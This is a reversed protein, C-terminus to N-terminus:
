PMDPNNKLDNARKIMYVRVQEVETETMYDTFNPMGREEAIGGLVFAAFVNPDSITGSYRLNPVGGNNVGTDGHCMWCNKNYALRGAAITQESAEHPPPNLVLSPKDPMPLQATGDLAFTVIRNVTPPAGKSLLEGMNLTMIGGWGTAVSIYQKGDIAYTIPPAVIGTSVNQEWLKEGTQASYASFYGEGNGHFVLEGATSLTGGNWPTAMPVSWVEEQKVPDWAILKSQTSARIQARIEPDEPMSITAPNEGTNWAGPRYEFETSKLANYPYGAIMVPFYVLGTEPNFSMPHWNHGGGPGPTGLFPEGDISYRAEDVTNPRGTEPNLGNAWNVPVYEKGSIFEGTERDIVYFFGNKPAQMIVKRQEGEIELDALIMHQTATFDWQDEPTTQFHWVYEGTKPRVAVISSLYLNDGGQPSRVGQNWPSGNGTGIYFLDLEPDYAMSDWATGGGGYKWWEGTWTEAAREMAPSEFGDAPNGPVVHFRWAQEGTDVRYATVYGRVGYEGGGNGIMVLDGAIRPAGTITYDKSQDVTVQEWAVAGTGADLAILRGDLTGTIVKGDAVAVGRNVVDCCAKRATAGAIEPDYTWLTEGSVADLAMVVNWPGTVYMTGDVVIPTAEVGRLSRSKIDAFWAVGLENVNDANIATLPSFRQEGQTLGHHAWSQDDASPSESCGSFGLALSALMVPLAFWRKTQQM